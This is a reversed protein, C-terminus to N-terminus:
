WTMLRPGATRREFIPNVPPFGLSQAGARVYFRESVM